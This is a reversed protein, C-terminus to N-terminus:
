DYEAIGGSPTLPLNSPDTTADPETVPVPGDEALRQDTLVWRGGDHVFDFTRTARYSTYEPEDGSIRKRYLSTLEALTLELRDGARRAAVFRVDTDAALYVEGGSHLRDRRTTLSRLAAAETMAYRPSRVVNGAALPAGAAPTAGEVLAVARSALAQRAATVLVQYEAPVTVGGAPWRATSGDAPAAGAAVALVAIAGVAAAWARRVVPTGAAAVARRTVSVARSPRSHYRANHRGTGSVSM